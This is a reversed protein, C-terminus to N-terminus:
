REVMELCLLIHNRLNRADDLTYLPHAFQEAGPIGFFNAVAGSSVILSDFPLDNACPGSNPVHGLGREAFCVVREQRQIGIVTGLRFHINPARGVIARVPYAVDGAELGATAVEYLLPQFTHYNRQDVLTVVVPQDALVKAAAFGAGVIVVRHTSGGSVPGGQLYQVLDLGDPITNMSSGSGLYVGAGGVRYKAWYIRKTEYRGRM